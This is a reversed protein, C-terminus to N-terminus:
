ELDFIKSVEERKERRITEYIGYSISVALILGTGSIANFVESIIALSGIIIGSLIALTPIYKSLLYKEIDEKSRLGSVQFGSSVLSEAVDAASMGGVNVWTYSFIICLSIVFLSHIILRMLDINFLHPVTLYYIIGSVPEGSISSFCGLIGCKINSTVQEKALSFAAFQLNALLAYTFILPLISTYLVSLELPRGFIGLQHVIPIEIRTRLFILVAIIIIITAFIASLDSFFLKYDKLKLSQVFTIIKGIPLSTEFDSLVFKQEFPSYVFPSLFGIVVRQSVGLLIILNIGSIFTYKDAIQVLLYVLFSGFVIQAFIFLKILINPSSPIAGFAFFFSEVLIFIIILTKEWKNYIKRGEEKQLDIDLIKSSVLIHLIIGAVIIPGIGLSALTNLKAGILASFILQNFQTLIDTTFTGLLPTHSLLLYLFSVLFVWKVKEKFSLQISPKEITPLFKSFILIDFKM